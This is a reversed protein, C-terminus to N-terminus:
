RFLEEARSAQKFLPAAWYYMHMRVARRRGCAPHRVLRKLHSKYLANIQKKLAKDDLSRGLARRIDLATLMLSLRNRYALHDHGNQEFFAGREELCALGDMRRQAAGAGRMVSQPSQYYFYLPWTSVAIRGARHVLRWVVAEDDISRGEPFRINQWLRAKYLKNWLVVMEVERPSYIAECYTEFDMICDPECRDKPKDPMATQHVVDGRCMSLDTDFRGCLELLHQLFGPWVFDDADVWAIYEGTAQRLATNRAAASGANKQRHVKLRGDKEALTCLIEYSDDTSGDDVAVVELNAHTQGLVTAVCRGVTEAANYVPILVSIKPVADM